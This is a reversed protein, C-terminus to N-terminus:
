VGNRPQEPRGAAASIPDGLIQARMLSLAWSHAQGPNGRSSGGRAARIAFQLSRDPGRRPEPPAAPQPSRAAASRRLSIAKLDLSGSRIVVQDEDSGEAAIKAELEKMVDPDRLTTVDGLARGEAIDRLLRRMIKGSRTKPLDDAWVIRRPRAFKGIRAGVTERIGAEAEEGPEIGGRLTVFASIAQGTDPGGPRDGGGRRRRPPRRDGVRGRRDLAPARLFASHDLRYARQSDAPIRAFGYRRPRDVRLLRESPGTTAAFTAKTWSSIRFWIRCGQWRTL